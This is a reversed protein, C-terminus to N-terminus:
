EIEFIVNVTAHVEAKGPELADSSALAATKSYMVPSPFQNWHDLSVNVVRKLKVGVAKALATADAFANKVAGRIAEERHMQPNSLTFNVHDVQNAGAEVATGIIKDVLDLKLTKIQISNVAEYGAIRSEEQHGTKFSKYVPRISFRGTQYDGEDLGIEQLNAIVHHMKQNNKSLADSSNEASTVVGLSIEMQDSSKFVSAEGKVLLKPIQDYDLQLGYLQTTLAAFIVFFFKNIKM